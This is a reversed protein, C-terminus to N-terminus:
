PVYGDIRLGTDILDFLNAPNADRGGQPHYQFHLHAARAPISMGSAVAGGTHGLYGIVTGATVEVPRDGTDIFEAPFADGPHAPDTGLHLYHYMAGSAGTLRVRHGGSRGERALIFEATGNEVALLPTGIPAKLDIGKHLHTESRQYHWGGRGPEGADSGRLEPRERFDAWSMGAVPFVFDPM